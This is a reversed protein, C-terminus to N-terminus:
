KQEALFEKRLKHAILIKREQGSLQREDSSLEPSKRKIVSGGREAAKDALKQIFRGINGTNQASWNAGTPSGGRTCDSADALAGEKSRIKLDTVVFHTGYGLLKKLLIDYNRSRYLTMLEKVTEYQTQKQQGALKAFMRSRAAIRKKWKRSGPICQSIRAELANIKPKWHYDPRPLNKCFCGESFVVGLRSAGLALFVIREIPETPPKPIDYTISVQFKSKEAMNRRDRYLELKCTKTRESLKPLQYGPPIPFWLPEEHKGLSVRVLGREDKVCDDKKYRWPIKYFDRQRRLSSRKADPDGKKLLAFLSKFAADVADLTEEMPGRPFQRLLKRRNLLATLGSPGNQGNFTLKTKHAEFLQKLEDKLSNVLGGNGQEDASKIRLYVPLLFRQYTLLRQRLAWNFIINCVRSLAYLKTIESESPEIPFKVTRPLTNTKKQGKM